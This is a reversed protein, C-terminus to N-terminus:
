EEIGRCYQCFSLAGEIKQFDVKVFAIQSIELFKYWLKCYLLVIINGCNMVNQRSYCMFLICYYM